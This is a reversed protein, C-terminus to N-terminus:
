RSTRLEGSLHAHENFTMLHLGGRGAVIRTVSANVVVRALKRYADGGSGLLEDCIVAIPGGSTVVIATDQDARVLDDAVDAFAALCRARFDPWTEAYDDDHEGSRWRDIANEFVTQYGRPDRGADAVPVSSPTALAVIAEGDLEDWRPDITVPLTWGAGAVVGACSDRQRRLSGHRILGPTLETLAQGTVAAQQHGVASLVDYDDAGFSAQGHRVLLIQGM